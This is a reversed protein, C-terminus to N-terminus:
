ALITRFLVLATVVAALTAALLLAVVTSLEPRCIFRTAVSALAGGAVGAGVILGLESLTPM